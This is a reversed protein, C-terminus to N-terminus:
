NRLNEFTTGSCNKQHHLTNITNLTKKPSNFEPYCKTQGTDPFPNWDVALAPSAVTLSLCGLLLGCVCGRGKAMKQSVWGNTTKKMKDGKHYLYQEMHKM